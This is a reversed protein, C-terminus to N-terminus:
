YTDVLLDFLPEDAGEGSLSFVVMDKSVNVTPGDTSTIVFCQIHKPKGPLRGEPAWEIEHVGPQLYAKMNDFEGAQYVITASFSNDRLGAERQMNLTGFGATVDKSEISAGINAETAYGSVDYGDIALFANNSALRTGRINNCTM